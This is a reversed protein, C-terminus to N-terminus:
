HCSTSSCQPLNHGSDKCHERLRRELTPASSRRFLTELKSSHLKVFPSLVAFTCGSLTWLCGSSDLKCKCLGRGRQPLNVERAHPGCLCCHEAWNTTNEKFSLERSPEEFFTKKKKQRSRLVNYREKWRQVSSSSPISFILPFNTECFYGNEPKITDVTCNQFQAKYKSNWM